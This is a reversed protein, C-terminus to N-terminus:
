WKIDQKLSLRHSKNIAEFDYGIILKKPTQFAVSPGFELKKNAYGAFAGLYFHYKPSDKTVTATVTTSETNKIPKLWKYQFGLGISKNQSVTDFLEASIEDNRFARKFVNTEFYKRLIAATDVNAPVPVTITLISAIPSVPVASKQTSDYVTHTEKFTQVTDHVLEPGACKKLCVCAALCLAFGAIFCLIYKWNSV